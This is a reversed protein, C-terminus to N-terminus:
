VLDHDLAYRAAEHRSRVNLKGYISRLHTDVTRHSIFLRKGIEAYSLGQALLGLVDLERDTLNDHAASGATPPPEPVHPLDAMEGAGSPRTVEERELEEILEELASQRGKSWLADFAEVGLEARARALTRDRDAADAPQFAGPHSELARDAAGLWRVAREARGEAGFLCGISLLCAAVGAVQGISRYLTLCERLAEGAHERDGGDLLTHAYQRLTLATHFVNGVERFRSLAERLYARASEHDGEHRAIIGLGTLARAEWDRSGAARSMEVAELRLKRSLDLDGQLGALGALANVVFAIGWADDAARWLAAAATLEIEAREFDRVTISIVGLNTLAEAETRGDEAERALPISEELRIRAGALDGQVRALVGAGCLARARPGPLGGSLSLAQALWRRGETLHGRLQWFEWLAACFRLAIEADGESFSWALAARLNDHEEDLRELAASESAGRISPRTAEVLALFYRAHRARLEDSADESSDPRRAWAYERIMELMSFRLEGNAGTRSQVLSHDVLAELAPIVDLHPYEGGGIAEAAEIDWSGSFVAFCTLLGQEEPLLLDYSWAIAAELTQQRPPLDRTGGRLLSLRNTLRELLAQPSLLKSRAAALEIALPIGDLRQCLQAVVAANSHRLSFGPNVAQARAEFLAVAPSKALEALPPLDNLDPLALPALPFEHEGSIRLPGRSTVLARLHAVGKLLDAVLTAAGQLHEFNDLVLVARRSQLFHRIQEQLPAESREQIGLAQMVAALVLDPTGVPALPVFYVGDPFQPALQAAVELALRTKGVGPPGTLTVLRVDSDGLAQCLADVERDRGLLPTLPVPLFDSKM